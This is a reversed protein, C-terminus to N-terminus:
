VTIRSHVCAPAHRFYAPGCRAPIRFHLTRSTYSPRYFSALDPSDWSGSIWYGIRVFGSVSGASDVVGAAGKQGACFAFELDAGWVGHEAVEVVRGSGLFSECYVLVASPDVRAVDSINILAPMDMDHVALLVEDFDSAPLDTRGLNLAAYELVSLDSIHADNTNRLTIPLSLTNTRENHLM